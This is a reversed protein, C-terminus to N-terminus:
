EQEIWSELLDSPNIVPLLLAGWNSNGTKELVIGRLTSYSIGALTAVFLEQFVPEKNENLEYMENINDIEFHFNYRFRCEFETTQKNASFILQLGFLFRKDELNYGTLHATNISLSFDDRKTNAMDDIKVSIEEIFLLKIKDPYINISKEPM